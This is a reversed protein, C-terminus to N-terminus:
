DQKNKWWAFVMFAEVDWPKLVARYDQSHIKNQGQRFLPYDWHFM